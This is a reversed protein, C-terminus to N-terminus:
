SRSSSDEPIENPELGFRENLVGPEEPSTKPAYDLPAEVRVSDTELAADDAPAAEPLANFASEGEQTCLTQAGKAVHEYVDRYNATLTNLKDATDAFHANVRQEYQEQSEKAAELAEELERTQASGPAMKRGALYGILLGVAAGIIAIFILEEMGSSM